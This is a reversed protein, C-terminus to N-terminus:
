GGLNSVSTQASQGSAKDQAQVFLRGSIGFVNFEIDARFTGDAAVPFTRQGSRDPAAGSYFWMADVTTGPTWGSGTLAFGTGEISVSITEVRAVNLNDNGSGKWAIFLTTGDTALAPADSSTQPSITKGFFTAGENTSVMVNLNDNGDGKWALYLSGNLGALAPNVPSTDGLVPPPLIFVPRGMLPDYEVGSVRLNHDGAGKWGMFLGDGNTGLTPAASSTEFSTSFKNVDSFSAGAPGADTSVMVNLDNNGWGKWALYVRGNLVALAPRVDSTDSLSGAPTIGKPVGTVPDLVVTSVHLNHNGSRKYAIFLTSGDSALAPSDSSSDAPHHFKNADENFSAVAGKDPLLMVNVDDNGDGKWAIYLNGNCVAISPSVPSTNKLPLPTTTM